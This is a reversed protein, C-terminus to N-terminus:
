TARVILAVYLSLCLIVKASCKEEEPWDPWDGAKIYPFDYVPFANRLINIIKENRMCMSTEGDSKTRKGNRSHRARNNEEM